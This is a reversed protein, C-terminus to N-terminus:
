ARAALEDREAALEKARAPTLGSDEYVFLKAMIDTLIMRATIEDPIGKLIEGITLGVNQPFFVGKYTFVIGDKGDFREILRESM